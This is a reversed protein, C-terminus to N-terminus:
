CTLDHFYACSSSMLSLYSCRLIVNRSSNLIDEAFIDIKIPLNYYYTVSLLDQISSFLGFEFPVTGNSFVMSGIRQAKVYIANVISFM